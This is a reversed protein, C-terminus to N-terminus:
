CALHAEFRRDRDMERAQHALCIAVKQGHKENECFGRIM